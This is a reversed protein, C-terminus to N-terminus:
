ALFEVVHWTIATWFTNKSLCCGLHVHLQGDHLSHCAASLNHLRGVVPQQQQQQQQRRTNGCGFYFKISRNDVSLCALSVHPLNCEAYPSRWGTRVPSYASPRSKIVNVHRFKEEALRRAFVPRNLKSPIACNLPATRRRAAFAARTMSCSTKELILQRQEITHKRYIIM